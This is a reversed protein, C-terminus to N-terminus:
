LLILFTRPVLLVPLVEHQLYTPFQWILLVPQKPTFLLWNHTHGKHITYTYMWSHLMHVCPINYHIYTYTFTVLQLTVYPHAHEYAAHTCRLKHGAWQIIDVILLPQHGHTSCHSLPIQHHLAVGAVWLFLYPSMVGGCGQRHPRPPMCVEQCTYMYM